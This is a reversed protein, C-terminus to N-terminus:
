AMGATTSMRQLANAVEEVSLPVVASERLPPTATEIDQLAAEAKFLFQNFGHEGALAFAREFSARAKESYGFRRYGDGVSLHFATSMHAPLDTAALQRRYSEFLLEVGTNVAIELLNLTSAWRVYQEQATLSLVLYADRAASYVGLELFSVAIDALIRDRESAGQVHELAEYAFQISLEYQGRHFAVNARDHLARSRVDDLEPGTARAITENLVEEARPLNGRLIAIRGEGIRARLVGVIDGLATAVESAAAFAVAAEDIRNLNRFCQGLRLHAAISADGDERPHLHALVSQYVDAALMWKAEYELAKAYSMLPTVVVHIDPKQEHLADVVRDLISKIPTGDDMSEVAARVSRVSWGDDAVVSRGNELWADVLRLAVLGATASRWAADGEEHSAVEEFFPLHRLKQESQFVPRELVDLGM